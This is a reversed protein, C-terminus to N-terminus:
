APAGADAGGQRPERLLARAAALHARAHARSADSGEPAAAAGRPAGPARHASQARPHPQDGAREDGQGATPSDDPTAGREVPEGEELPQRLRELAQATHAVGLRLAAWTPPPPSPDLLGGLRRALRQLQARVRTLEELWQAEPAAVATREAPTQLAQLFLRPHALMRTRATSNATTDHRYWTALERTSLPEERLAALLTDAEAANARAWPVLVRSAAWSSVVGQRVAEQLPESLEALLALRRSM